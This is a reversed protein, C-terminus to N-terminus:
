SINKEIKTSTTPELGEPPTQAILKDLGDSMVLDTWAEFGAEVAKMLEAAAQEGKTDMLKEVDQTKPM